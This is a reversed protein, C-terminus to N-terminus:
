ALTRVRHHRGLLQHAGAGGADGLRRLDSAATLAPTAASGGPRATPPRGAPRPPPLPPPRRRTRGRGAWDFSITTPPPLPRAASLLSGRTPATAEGLSM